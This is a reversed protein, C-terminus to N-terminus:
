NKEILLQKKYAELPGKLGIQYFQQHFTQWAQNHDKKESYLQEFTADFTTFHPRMIIHVYQSAPRHELPMFADFECFQTVLDLVFSPRIEAKEEQESRAYFVGKFFSFLKETDRDIKDIEAQYKPSIKPIDQQQDMAHICFLTGISLSAIIKLMNRGQKASNLILKM